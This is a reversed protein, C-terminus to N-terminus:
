NPKDTDLLIDRFILKVMLVCLVIFILPLLICSLEFWHPLGTIGTQGDSLYATAAWGAMYLLTLAVAAWAEKHAQYFRKDM